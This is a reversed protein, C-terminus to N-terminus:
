EKGGTLMDYVLGALAIREELERIRQQRREGGQAETRPMNSLLARDQKMTHELFSLLVSSNKQMLVPGFCECAKIQREKSLGAADMREQLACSKKESAARWDDGAATKSEPQVSFPNRAQIVPYYKGDEFVMDEDTIVFGNETLWRRVLWVESQPELVLWSLQRTKEPVDSLIRITLKGGMGAAIMVDAGATPAGKDSLGVPVQQLGDSLVPTIRDTLGSAQIHEKARSLPGPRVDAAFVHSSIGNEALYISVFGHDCGVDAVIHGAPVMQAVARMRKSLEMSIVM